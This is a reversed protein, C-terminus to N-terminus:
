TPASAVVGLMFHTFSTENFIRRSLLYLLYPFFNLKIFVNCWNPSLHEGRPACDRTESVKHGMIEWHFSHM